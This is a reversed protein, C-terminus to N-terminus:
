HGHRGEVKRELNRVREEIQVADRLRLLQELIAVAARVRVADGDQSKLCATLTNSAAIGSRILSGMTRSVLKAQRQEVLKVFPEQRLWVFVAGASCGATKAAQKVTSGGALLVAVRQQKGTFRAFDHM